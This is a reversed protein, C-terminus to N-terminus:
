RVNSQLYGELGEDHNWIFAQAARLAQYGMKKHWEDLACISPLFRVKVGRYENVQEKHYHGCHAERFETAAFMEPQETAMILPMDSPKENDGHTFMIMSKGYKYYKRPMTSNDVSVNPDNRYWGSLVDGAYFMREYDHNGSVVIIDVPAIDKLFDVARVILTWYGKFSEKWGVTDHQPTGKTTAMRMGDTNMGDNGIPLLIKEINIGRGKNVLDEITDLFQKEMDELTVDTLKGYHIDPLSIELTSKIKYDVGRGKTIVRTRPSYSAAFEEIDKQIEEATRESKTVVSFRQEGKMNQWYKVSNVMSHDIGNKELYQEFETIVNDSDNELTEVKVVKRNIERQKARVIKLAATADHLSVKFKRAVLAPGKKLFWPRATLTQTLETLTM